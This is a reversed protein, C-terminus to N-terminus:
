LTHSRQASKMRIIVGSWPALKTDVASGSLATRTADMPNWLEAKNGTLAITGNWAQDSDNIVFYIDYGDKRRHTMRLNANDTTKLQPSLWKDITSSTHLADAEALFQVHESPDSLMKQVDGAIAADPFNETTNAPKTGVFLIRGGSKWFKVLNSWAAKPITDVAPLVIARYRSNGVVLEGKDIKANALSSSHMYDYDRMGEFLSRTVDRQVNSISVCEPSVELAGQRSPTFNAWVSEIPYLLAVDSVRYGDFLVSNVRATYSLLEKVEQQGHKDFSSYTNWATIGGWLMRNYAGRFLEIPLPPQGGMRQIHDSIEMMVYRSGDLQAVSSAFRAADYPVHSDMLALTGTRVDKPNSSLVDIGPADLAQLCVFLDGYLPAHHVVNEELLAHWWVSHPAGYGM